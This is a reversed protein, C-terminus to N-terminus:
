HDLIENELENEDCWDVKVYDIDHYLMLDETLFSKERSIAEPFQLEDFTVPVRGAWRTNRYSPCIPLAHLSNLITTLLRGDLGVAWGAWKGILVLRTPILM